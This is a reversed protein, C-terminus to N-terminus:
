PWPWPQRLRAEDDECDGGDGGCDGGGGGGGRRAAAASPPAESLWDRWDDAAAGGDSEDSGCEIGEDYRFRGAPVAQKRRQLARVRRGLKEHELLQAHLFLVSDDFALLCDNLHQRQQERLAVLREGRARAAPDSLDEDSEEEEAEGGRGVFSAQLQLLTRLETLEEPLLTGDDLRLLEETPLALEDDGGDSGDPAPAPPGKRRQPSSPPVLPFSGVLASPRMAGDFPWPRVLPPTRSVRGV